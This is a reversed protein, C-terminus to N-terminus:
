MGSLLTISTTAFEPPKTEEHAKKTSQKFNEKNKGNDSLRRSKKCSGSRSRSRHYRQKSRSRKRSRSTSRRSRSKSRSRSRNRRKSQTYSRIKSHNSPSRSSSRSRYPSRSRRSRNRNRKDRSSRHSDKFSIRNSRYSSLSNFTKKEFSFFIQVFVWPETKGIAVEVALNGLDEIIVDQDIVIEQLLHLRLGIPFLFWSRMRSLNGFCFLSCVSMLTPHLHGTQVKDM